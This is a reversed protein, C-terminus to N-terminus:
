RVHRNFVPDILVPIDGRLMINNHHLDIVDDKNKGIMNLAAMVGPYTDKIWTKDEKDLDKMSRVYNLIWNLQNVNEIACNDPVPKLKELRVAYTYPDIQILGGKIKPVNPNNQNHLAYSIYRLYASDDNFIKFVWPYGPKEYVAGFAGMGLQNFGYKKLFRTFQKLKAQREEGPSTYTKFLTKAKKYIPNKRYGILEDIQM